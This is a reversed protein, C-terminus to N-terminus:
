GHRDYPGSDSHHHRPAVTTSLKQFSLGERTGFTDVGSCGVEQRTRLLTEGALGVIVSPRVDPYRKQFDSLLGYFAAVQRKRSSPRLVNWVRFCGYLHPYHMLGGTGGFEPTVRLQWKGHCEVGHISLVLENVFACM